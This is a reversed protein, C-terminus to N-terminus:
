SLKGGEGAKARLDGIEALNNFGALEVVLGAECLAAVQGPNAGEDTILRSVKGLPAFSMLSM